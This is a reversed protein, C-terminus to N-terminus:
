VPGGAGSIPPPLCATWVGGAVFAIRGADIYPSGSALNEKIRFSTGTPLHHVGVGFPAGSLGSIGAVFVLWDGQLSPQGVDRWGETEIARTTNSSVDLMALHWGSEQDDGSSWYYAVRGADIDPGSAGVRAPLPHDLRMGTRTDHVVISEGSRLDGAIWTVLGADVSVVRFSGAEIRTTTGDSFNHLYLGADGGAVIFLLLDGDLDRPAPSGAIGLQLTSNQRSKLDMARLVVEHDSEERWVLRDASLVPSSQYAPGAVLVSTKGTSFNYGYIDNGRGDPESEDAVAMDWVMWDGSIKPYRGGASAPVQFPRDSCDTPDVPSNLPTPEQNGPRELCAAQGVTLLLAVFLLLITRSRMSTPKM